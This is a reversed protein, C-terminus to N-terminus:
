GVRMEFATGTVPHAPPCLRKPWRAPRAQRTAPPRWRGRGPPTAGALRGRRPSRSSMWRTATAFIATARKLIEADERLRRNERRLEALERREASALGGDHGTGANRGARARAATAAAPDGDSTVQGAPGGAPQCLGVIEAKCEGASWRDRRHRNGPCCGCANLPLPAPADSPRRLLGGAAPAVRQHAAGRAAAFWSERDSGGLQLADALLRVTDARPSRVRGAELNRVTRESVEARAALQEQSLLARHRCAQLLAGFWGPPSGSVLQKMDSGAGQLAQSATHLRCRHGM